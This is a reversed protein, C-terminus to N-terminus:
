SQMRVKRFRAEGRAAVTFWYRYFPAFTFRPARMLVANNRLVGSEDVTIYDAPRLGDSHRRVLAGVPHERRCYAGLAAETAVPCAKQFPGGSAWRRSM